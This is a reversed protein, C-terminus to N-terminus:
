LQYMVNSIMLGESKDTVLNKCLKEQRSDHLIGCENRTYLGSIGDHRHDHQKFKKPPLFPFSSVVSPHFQTANFAHISSHLWNLHSTTTSLSSTKNQIM